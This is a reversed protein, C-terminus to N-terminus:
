PSRVAGGSAPAPTAPIMVVPPMGAAALAPGCIRTQIIRIAGSLAITTLCSTTKQQAQGKTDGPNAFVCVAPPAPQQCNVSGVQGVVQAIQMATNASAIDVSTAADNANGLNGLSACGGIMGFGIAFVAALLLKRQNM